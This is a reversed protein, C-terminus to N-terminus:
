TVTPQPLIITATVPLHDSADSALVAATRTAVDDSTMVYDIRVSPSDTSYTFGDGVGAEEWSDTLDESIAAIEPSEPTGNLDGLLVVSSDSTSAALHARIAEVQDIRASQSDHQLHTSYARVETGDVDLVAELLGRQEDGPDLPLLLNGWSTIPHASLMTAASIM